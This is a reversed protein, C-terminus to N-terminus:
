QYDKLTYEKNMNKKKLSHVYKYFQVRFFGSYLTHQRTIQKEIQYTIFM